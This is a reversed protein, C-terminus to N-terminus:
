LTCHRKCDEKGFVLLQVQLKKIFSTLESTTAVFQADDDPLELLLKILKLTRPHMAFISFSPSKAALDTKSIPADITTNHWPNVLSFSHSLSVKNVREVRLAHREHAIGRQTEGWIMSVYVPFNPYLTKLKIIQDITLEATEVNILQSVFLTSSMGHREELVSHVTLSNIAEKRTWSKAFYYSSLHELIKVALSNTVAGISTHSDIEELLANNLFFVDHKSKDDHTYQYRTGLTKTQLNSSLKSRPIRVIVGDKTQTFLSKLRDRGKKSLNAVCDITALLYCDGIKGQSITIKEHDGPFLATLPM